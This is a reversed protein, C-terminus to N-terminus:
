RLLVIKGTEHKFLNNNAKDANLDNSVNDSSIQNIEEGNSKITVTYLYVGNALRDGYMDTGDWVIDTINNGIHINGLDDKTLEKVVKGQITMIKINIYDPVESGTLTFVFRMSTTFPNPYPYFNTASKQNIVTFNIQYETAGANNLNVDNSQVKLTYIGDPLNKPYFEARALNQVSTAPFFRIEFSDPNIRVFSTSNPRKWWLKIGASDVQWNYPNEDKSQIVITPNASVIEGNTIHRGNFTVDLLPNIKDEIVDFYRIASNNVLSLEPQEAKSFNDFNVTVQYAYRGSFKNTAVTTPIIFHQNPLLPNVYRFSSDYVTDKTDLNFVKVQYKLNGKFDLDSINQFGIAYRFPEGQKLSDRWVTNALNPNLAGEPVEGSTIRWEKLQPPTFNIPDEFVGELYINPFRKADISSIDFSNSRVSKFCVTDVGSNTVGHVNVYFDDGESPMNSKTYFYLHDWSSSPGILESRITGKNYKGILEKQIELSSRDDNNSYWIGTDEVAWGQPAGKRGIMAYSTTATLPYDTLRCGLKRFGEVVGTTWGSPNMGGRNCIAVYTSDPISDVWRTFQDAGGSYGISFNYFKRVKETFDYIPNGNGDLNNYDPAYANENFITNLRIQELTNKDFLVGIIGLFQAGPNLSTGAIGGKKVGYNPFPNINTAVYVYESNVTFAFSRKEKDLRIKELKTTPYFQPFHSQSWGPQHDFIHVFSREVFEGGENAAKNLRARWYYVISDRTNLLQVKWGKIQGVIDASSDKQKWPSNFTHSTDIEFIFQYNNEFINLAQAVLEVTDNNLKSVIDYRKPYILHIGNGPIMGEFTTTNNSMTSEIPDLLNNVSIFFKNSGATAIDKSKIYLYYTIKNKVGPVKFNYTTNLFDNPYSRDIRINFSDPIYKGKNEITVAIAFSDSVATFNSPYFSISNKDISYDPLKPQYFEISPDGQLFLIRAMINNLENGTLQFKYLMDKVADGIAYNGTYNTRFTLNYLDGMQTSVNGLESLATQSIFAIAGKGSAKIFNEGSLRVSKSPPGTCPNGISCGNFYFIPYKNINSYDSTDGMDVDTTISSGHGLFTVMQMGSDIYNILKSTLFPESIGAASKALSRVSGGFPEDEVIYELNALKTKIAATQAGDEGGALHLINKKWSADTTNALEILKNTYIGFEYPKDVTLRGLAVAPAIGSGNIGSAYLNDSAPVGISPMINLNQKGDKRLIDTQYGRGVLFLYKLTTDGNELLYRIYRRIAIPHEIGYSFHNYLQQVTVYDCPSTNTATNKYQLYQESYPGIFREGTLLLLRNKNIAQTPNYDIYDKGFTEFSIAASVQISAVARIEVSDLLFYDNEAGNASTPLVYHMKFGTGSMLGGRIRYGNTLDYIIPKTRTTSYNSWEHHQPFGTGVASFYLSSGGDLELDRPYELTIESLAFSQTTTNPIFVPEFKLYTTNTGFFSKPLTAYRRLMRYGDFTTDMFQTYTSNDPSIKARLHHDLPSIKNDNAGMFTFYLFPDPGNASLFKSNIIEDKIQQTTGFGFLTSCLGEGETYTPNKADYGVIDLPRGEYYNNTFVKSSESLIYSSKAYSGFNTNNYSQMHWGNTPSANPLFTLFYANSDAILSVKNQPQSASYEYLDEDLKGDNLKAYFEIFDDHNFQNDSEGSVYIPIEKGQHFIQFKKPNITGLDIKMESAAIILSQYSLQYIGPAGIKIKFYKQNYNIWENGYNQAFSLTSILGFCLLFTIRKM